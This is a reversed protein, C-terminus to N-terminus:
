SVADMQVFNGHKQWLKRGINRMMSYFYLCNRRFSSEMSEMWFVTPKLHLVQLQHLAGSNSYCTTMVDGVVYRSVWTPLM